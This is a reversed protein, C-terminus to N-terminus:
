CRLLIDPRNFNLFKWWQWFYFSCCMWICRIYRCIYRCIGGPNVYKWRNFRILCSQRHPWPWYKKLAALCRRFNWPNRTPFHVVGFIFSLQGQFGPGNWFSIFWKGLLLKWPIHQITVFAVFYPEMYNRYSSIWPLIIELKFFNFDELVGLIYPHKLFYHYGWIM